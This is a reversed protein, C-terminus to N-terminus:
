QERAPATRSGDLTGDHCAVAFGADHGHAHFFAQVGARHQHGLANGNAAFGIAIQVVFEGMQAGVQHHTCKCREIAATDFGLRLLAFRSVGFLNQLFFGSDVPRFGCAFDIAM